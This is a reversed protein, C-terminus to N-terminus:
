PCPNYWEPMLNFDCGVLQANEKREEDRLLKLIEKNHGLNNIGGLVLVGIKVEPWKEFIKQDIIFKM